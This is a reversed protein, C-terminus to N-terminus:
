AIRGVSLLEDLKALTVKGSLYLRRLSQTLQSM